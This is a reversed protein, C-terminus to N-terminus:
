QVQVPGIKLADLLKTRQGTLWTDVDIETRLVSKDVAVFQVKPELLQAAKTLAKAVRTTVAEAETKRADVNKLDLAALLAVDSGVEPKAPAVLAVEALIRTKDDPSLKQWTSSVKLVALADSYAKEHNEQAANLATRLIDALATRIPGVPDSPELLLRNTRVAEAQVLCQGAQSLDKAHKTMQELTQWAPLRKVALDRNKKWETIRAKLDAEKSKIAVLQENGVLKRMDEIDTTPPPSPLPPSGGAAGALAILAKLFDPAKAAEETSKNIDLLKFLARIAIREQVSLTTKEVRFGAKPVKAQDLQGPAVAVGNLTATVHQSRHLAILAADVADRPWGFPSAELDKRVQTGTKGPGITSLVQQCVPHQEIPGDYKLPLFPQDAGDRARKIAAEWASAAFDAEKFRPFLRVISAEAGTKFKEDLTLQLLENGGGQFAKAGAIIELVLDKRQKEALQRRSEMSQRALQGAEGSPVGKAAVTQEAAQETAIANLLEDRSKRPVFVYLIPSSVGAARAAAMMEKESGSFGDRVWVPITEGTAAPPDQTRCITMSRSEKATGQLLKLSRVIRDIEAGLFRDRKEDFNATDAKLKAVRQHFEFDWTRGEETQIRFEDGVRMLVSEDALQDLLGSVTSRLKGNDARLDDVLLDAIHEKSGRVGISAAHDTPLQGILFVLGCIRQRLRGEPKGDAGLSLIRENIERPLAGTTVMEPALADYLDDGPIVSSLPKNALGAISDYIIRLQSRLQSQTGATDVQRFCQEWFRRRVPLLPYDEVIIAKDDMREGIKTGKLQRSIEGAHTSLLDAIDGLATTKKRLLVKRTVTEVDADSLQIRITFRDLLRNLLPVGTLASQGAGVLIVQSDLQRSIAEAIETVLVSRTVSDGLYHQVEDLILITCPMQGDRGARKLVRKFMTLFEDTTLDGSKLPFQTKITDRVAAESIAFNPDCKLIAKAILPSVYLNNLENAWTKGAAEVSARVQALHGLEEMRLHFQAQPYQHPLGVARLLVSLVSLRVNETTGSPLTDAAALLGGSRKGARDLEVLLDRVEEPLEPVLSRATAGDAFKTDAWLHCLMKLLHSKGSGYFGSVWAAKQHTQNRSSLFSSLIKIMGEAYQGECVFTSLEARLEAMVKADDSENAIRAQGNNALAHQSPDRLLADKILM